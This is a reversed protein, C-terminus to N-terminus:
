QSGSADLSATSASALRTPAAQAISSSRPRKPAIASSPNAAKRTKKKPNKSFVDGVSMTDAVGFADNVDAIKAKSGMRNFSSTAQVYLSLSSYFYSLLLLALDLRFSSASFM